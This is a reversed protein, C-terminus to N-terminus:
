KNLKTVMEVSEVLKVLDNMEYYSNGILYPSYGNRTTRYHLLVGNADEHSVYMSPSKMKPYMFRMRLHM